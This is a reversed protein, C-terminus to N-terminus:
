IAQQLMASRANSLVKSYSQDNTEDFGENEIFNQYLKGCSLLYQEINEPTFGENNTKGLVPFASMIAQKILVSDLHPTYGSDVLYDKFWDGIDQSIEEVETQVGCKM